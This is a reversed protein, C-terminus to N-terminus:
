LSLRIFFFTDLLLSIEGRCAAEKPLRKPDGEM